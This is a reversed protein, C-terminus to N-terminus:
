HGGGAAHAARPAQVLVTVTAPSSTAGDRTITYTFSDTGTFGAAPRYTLAGAASLTATGHGPKSALATTTPVAPGRGIVAALGPAHVMLPAGRQIAFVHQIATVAVPGGRGGGFSRPAPVPPMEGAPFRPLMEDRDALGLMLSATIVANRMVDEPIVREYTDLNTHWTTSNY